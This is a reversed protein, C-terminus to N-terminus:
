DAAPKETEPESAVVPTEDDGNGNPKGAIERLNVIAAEVHGLLREAEPDSELLEVLQDDKLEEIAAM